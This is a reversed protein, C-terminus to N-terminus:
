FTSEPKLAVVSTRSRMRSSRWSTFIARPGRTDERWHVLPVLGDDSIPKNTEGGLSDRLRSRHSGLDTPNKGIRARGLLPCPRLRACCRAGLRVGASAGQASRDALCSEWNGFCTGLIGTSTIASSKVTGSRRSLRPPCGFGALRPRTLVPRHSLQRGRKACRGHRSM